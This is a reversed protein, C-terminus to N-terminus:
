YSWIRWAASLPVRILGNKTVLAIRNGSDDVLGGTIDPMKVIVVDGRRAQMSQRHGPGLVASIIGIVGGHVDLKEQATEETDYGIFPTFFDEGTIAEVGKAVFNMCDNVGWQFPMKMRERLYQSYLMPWNDRRVM